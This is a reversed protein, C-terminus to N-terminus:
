IELLKQLEQRARHHHSKVTGEPMNLIQAIQAMTLEQDITLMLVEQQQPSLKQISRKLRLTQEYENLQQFPSPASSEIEPSEEFSDWSRVQKFHEFRVNRAVGFAFMEITGRSLDIQGDQFKRVTRLLTDQTLDDAVSDSLSAAFYRYLRPGLSKVIEDWDVGATMAKSPLEQCFTAFFNHKDKFNFASEKKTARPYSM